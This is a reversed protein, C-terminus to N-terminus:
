FGYIGPPQSRLPLSQGGPNIGILAADKNACGRQAGDGLPLLLSRLFFEGFLLERYFIRDIGFGLSLITLLAM